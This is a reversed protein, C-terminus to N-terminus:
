GVAFETDPRMVPSHFGLVISKQPIGAAMLMDAVILDTNDQHLWVTADNRVEIHILTNYFQTTGKWGNRVLLYNGTEDDTIVQYRIPKAPNNKRMGLDFIIKRAAKRYRTLKEM